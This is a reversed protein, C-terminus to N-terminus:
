KNGEQNVGNTFTITATTGSTCWIPNQPYVPYAPYSPFNFGGNPKGCCPCYNNHGNM